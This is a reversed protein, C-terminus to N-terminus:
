HKQGKFQLVSVYNSARTLYLTFCTSWRNIVTCVARDASDRGSRRITVTFIGPRCGGVGSISFVSETEVAGGM